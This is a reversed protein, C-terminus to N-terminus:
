HKAKWWSKKWDKMQGLEEKQSVVLKTAFAKVESHQLKPESTESMKIAGAHHRSMMEIFMRDFEEGKAAALKEMSMGKMSEPMGPMKMNMAEPKGAYWQERWGKLQATEKQQDEIMKSAMTKLEAHAARSGALRAMDMAMKHHMAMTDIFQLDAPATAANPSSSMHMSDMDSGKMQHMGAADHSMGPMPAAEQPAAQRASATQASSVCLVLALVALNPSKM